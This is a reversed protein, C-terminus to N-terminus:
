NRRALFEFLRKRSGIRKLKYKLKFKKKNKRKKYFRDGFASLLSRRLSDIFADSRVERRERIFSSFLRVHKRVGKFNKKRERKFKTAASFFSRFSSKIRFKNSRKLRRRLAPLYKQLVKSEKDKLIKKDFIGARRFLFSYSSGRTLNKITFLKNKSFSKHLILENITLKRPTYYQKLIYGKTDRIAQNKLSLKPSYTLLPKTHYYKPFFRKSEKKILKRISLKRLIKKRSIGKKLLKRFLRRKRLRRKRRGRRTSRKRVNRLIKLRKPNLRVKKPSTVLRNLKKKKHSKKLAKKPSTVLRNLKKKKRSKKLAKNRSKVIGHNRKGKATSYYRRRNRKIKRSVYSLRM